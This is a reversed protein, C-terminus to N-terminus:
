HKQFQNMNGQTDTPRELAMYEIIHFYWYNAETGQKNSM